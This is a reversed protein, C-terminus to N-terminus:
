RKVVIRHVVKPNKTKKLFAVIAITMLLGFILVVKKVGLYAFVLVIGAISRYSGSVEYDTGKEIDLAIFFTWLFILTIVVMAILPKRGSRIKSYKIISSEVPLHARLHNFIETRKKDDAVV